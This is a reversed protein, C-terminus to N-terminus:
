VLGRRVALAAAATRTPVDLKALISAVHNTVTRYSISLAVAIERDSMGAAVLHLVERERPSLGFANNRRGRTAPPRAKELGAVWAAADEAIEDLDRRRADAWLAEFREPGLAVRLRTVAADYVPREAGSIPLALEDRLGSAAGFLLTGREVAGLEIAITAM